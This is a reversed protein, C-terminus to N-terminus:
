RKLNALFEVIRRQQTVTLAKFADRVSAAEGDHLQIAQLLSSARGDHLYPSTTGVGWLPPTIFQAAAIIGFPKIDALAPGMDHRKFDSWLEITMTRDGNIQPRPTKSDTRLDSVFAPGGTLDPLESHTPTNLVFSPVHCSACGVQMFLAEGERVRGAVIPDVPPTRVPAERLLGYTALATLQGETIESAVGDADPDHCDPGNGLVLPIPNACHKAIQTDAAMGFHVRLGGEIFRRLLAERGKWGFPKVVLDPDVGALQTTDISGDPRVIISGFSVGKASLAVTQPQGSQAARTKAQDREAQLERTMEIGLQQRYGLGLVAPPNRPLGSAPNVGDGLQFINSDLDGGGDEGGVNHCGVCSTAEPGGFAGFHVKRMNPRPKNGAVGGMLANGLGEDVSFNHSFLFDGVDFLSSPTFNGGDIDRQDVRSQPFDMTGPPLCADNECRLTLGYTSGGNRHFSSAVLLYEGDQPLTFHDILSDTACPGQGGDDATILRKRKGLSGQPPGYIHVVTNMAACDGATMEVTVEGGALGQFVYGRRQGAHLITNPADSPIFAGYDLSGEQSVTGAIGFSDGKGDDLTDPDPDGAAPAQAPGCAAVAISIGLAFRRLTTFTM